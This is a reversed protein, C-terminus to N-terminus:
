GREAALAWGRAALDLRRQGMLAIRRGAAGTGKSTVRRVIAGRGTIKDVKLGVIAAGPMRHHSWGAAGRGQAVGIRRVPQPWPIIGVVDANLGHIAGITM